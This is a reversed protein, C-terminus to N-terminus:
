QLLEDTLTQQDWIKRIIERASTIMYSEKSAVKVMTNRESIGETAEMKLDFDNDQNLAEAMLPCLVNVVETNVIRSESKVRRHVLFVTHKAHM